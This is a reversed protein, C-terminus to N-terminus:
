QEINIIIPSDYDLGLLQAANGKNIGIELLGLSNFIIFCEGNEVSDYYDHVHFARERGFSIAFRKDRTLFRFTEEEINSILNGYYDVRIVHGAIQSKTSKVRRPIMIKFDDIRVGLDSFGVGSALKAAATALIDKAPFQSRIKHPNNLDIAETSTEETILGFLGNDHGLFYHENVKLGVFRSKASGVAILHTTGKPFDRYVSKVVFSAHALDGAQVNHTIDVITLNPNFALIRAKVAAIYHDTEGFDSTFTIIAM